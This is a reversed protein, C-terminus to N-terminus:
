GAKCETRHRPFHKSTKPRQSSSHCQRQQTQSVGEPSFHAPGYGALYVAGRFVAQLPLFLKLCKPLPTCMFGKLEPVVYLGIIELTNPRYFLLIVQLYHCSQIEKQKLIFAHFHKCKCGKVLFPFLLFLCTCFIHAIKINYRSKADTICM